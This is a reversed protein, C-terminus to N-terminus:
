VRAENKKYKEDYQKLKAVVVVRQNSIFRKRQTKVVSM